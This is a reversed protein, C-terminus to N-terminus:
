APKRRQRLRENLFAIAADLSAQAEDIAGGMPLYGNIQGPLARLTVTVGAKYLRDAFAEGEDHLPDQGCVTIFTPPMGAMSTARLPSARWDTADISRPLYQRRLWRIADGSVPVDRIREFSPSEAAMDTVPYFLLQAIPVPRCMERAHMAVISALAGGACDGMVAIRKPDVGWSSAREILMAHGDIADEVAAPFPNEPALRYDVAIVQVRGRDVIQRCLRDHSDLGGAIWGGGHFFLIAPQPGPVQEIPLYRRLPISGARGAVSDDLVAGVEVHPWHLQDVQARYRSRATAVSRRAAALWHRDGFRRLYLDAEAVLGAPPQMLGTFRHRVSSVPGRLRSM